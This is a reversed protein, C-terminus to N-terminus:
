KGAVIFVYIDDKIITWSHYIFNSLTFEFNLRSFEDRKLCSIYLSDCNAKFHPDDNWTVFYFYYLHYFSKRNRM